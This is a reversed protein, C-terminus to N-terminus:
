GAALERRITSAKVIYTADEDDACITEADRRRAFWMAADVDNTWAPGLDWFRFRKRSEDAIVYGDTSDM